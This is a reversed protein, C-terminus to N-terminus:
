TGPFGPILVKSRVWPGDGVEEFTRNGREIKQVDARVM